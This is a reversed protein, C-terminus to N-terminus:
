KDPWYRADKEQVWTHEPVFTPTIYPNGNLHRIAWLYWLAYGPPTVHPHTLGAGIFVTDNQRVKLVDEGLEAYGFGNAPNCKYYYIERQPHHHPPYSSWKGPFGIVEGLVLNSYPANSYDFITRVIRTSTEKMLGQGRMEDPTDTDLYLRAAFARENDTRVINIESDASVASLTVPTYADVHLATPATDFCNDRRVTKEQGDWSFTVEGYVLLFAKELPREDTFSEGARMRLVAFDMMMDSHEGGMSAIPTYGFPHEGGARRIANKIDSM